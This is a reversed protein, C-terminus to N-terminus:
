DRPPVLPAYMTMGTGGQISRLRFGQSLKRTADDLKMEARRIKNQLVARAAKKKAGRLWASERRDAM